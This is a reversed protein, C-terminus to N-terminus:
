WDAWVEVLVPQGKAEALVAKLDRPTEVTRWAELNGAATPLSDGCGPLGFAALAALM